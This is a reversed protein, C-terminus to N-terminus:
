LRELGVVRAVAYTLVQGAADVRFRATPLQPDRRSQRVQLLQGEAVPPAAVPLLLRYRARDSVQGTTRDPEPTGDGDTHPTILCIGDYVTTPVAVPILQGTTEDLDDDTVGAPDTTITCLDDMLAEVRARARTLDPGVM